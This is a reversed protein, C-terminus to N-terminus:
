QAVCVNQTCAAETVDPCEECVFECRDRNLGILDFTAEAALFPFDVGVAEPCGCPNLDNRLTCDDATECRSPAVLGGYINEEFEACQMTEAVTCEGMECIGILEPERYGRDYSCQEDACMFPHVCGNEDLESLANEFESIDASAAVSNSCECNGARAVIRCDIDEDCERSLARIADALANGKEECIMAISSDSNPSNNSESEEAEGCACLALALMTMVIARRM